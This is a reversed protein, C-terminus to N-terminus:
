TATVARSTCMGSNAFSEINYRAIECCVPVICNPCNTVTHQGSCAQAVLQTSQCVAQVGPLMFVFCVVLCATQVGHAASCPCTQMAHELSQQLDNICPQCLIGGHQVCTAAPRWSMNVQLTRVGDTGSGEDAVTVEVFEAATDDDRHGFAYVPEYGISGDPKRVAVEDGVKLARMYAAAGNRLYVTSDAPFCGLLSNSVDRTLQACGTASGDDSVLLTPVTNYDTCLKSTFAFFVPLQQVPVWGSEGKYSGLVWCFEGWCSSLNYGACDSSQRSNRDLYQFTDGVPIVVDHRNQQVAPAYICPATRM